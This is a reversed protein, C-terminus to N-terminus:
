WDIDRTIPRGRLGDKIFNQTFRTVNARWHSEHSAIYELLQDTFKGLDLFYHESERIILQDAPNSKSRPNILKTADLLNGCNDCQDGRASEYGCFYCTGEVFRDPLFRGEMESYLLEQTEKYLFGRELLVTFFDQAIQHHNETDT